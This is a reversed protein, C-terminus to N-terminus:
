GWRSPPAIHAMYPVGLKEFGAETGYVVDVADSRLAFYFLAAPPGRWDGLKGASMQTVLTNAQGASLDPFPKGYATRAVADAARLGDGYFETFPASVGLYKIILMSDAQAGSLQHDLYEALGAAASGPLLTEGLAELTKVGGADLTRFPLKASHAQAPTLKMECGSLTFTLLGIGGVAGRAIFERRRIM